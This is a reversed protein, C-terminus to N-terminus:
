HDHCRICGRDSVTKFAKKGDHCSACDIMTPPVLEPAHDPQHCEACSRVKHDKDHRFRDRTSWERKGSKERPISKYVHCAACRGLPAPEVEKPANELHCKVCAAHGLTPERPPLLAEKQHCEECAFDAKIHKTHAVFLYDPSRWESKVESSLRLPNPRFPESRVHCNLCITQGVKRFEAAHCVQCPRHQDHGAEVKEWKTSSAHCSTCDETKALTLPAKVNREALKAVDLNDHKAHVFLRAQPPLPLVALQFGPPATHCRDCQTGLADFAEKGNHCSECMQMPPRKIFDLSSHCSGCTFKQGKAQVQKAHNAHDFKAIVRYVNGTTREGPTPMPTPTPTLNPTPTPTPNLTPNPTPIPPKEVLQQQGPATTKWTLPTHCLKCGGLDEHPRDKLHCSECATTTGKFKYAPHCGLCTAQLHKGPLLEPNYKHKYFTKKWNEVTHCTQCPSRTGGHTQKHCDGCTVTATLHAGGTHCQECKLDHKGVLQFKHEPGKHRISKWGSVDHCSQCQAGLTGKHNKRDGHCGHCDLPVGKWKRQGGGAPPHCSECAVGQHKGILPYRTKSHDFPTEAHASSVAVFLGLAVLLRATM